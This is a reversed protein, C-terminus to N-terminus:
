NNVLMLLDFCNLCFNLSCPELVGTLQYKRHNARIALPEDSWTFNDFWSQYIIYMDDICWTNYFTSKYKQLIVSFLPRIFPCLKLILGPRKESPSLYFRQCFRVMSILTKSTFLIRNIQFSFLYVNWIIFKM